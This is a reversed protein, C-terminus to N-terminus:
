IYNKILYKKIILVDNAFPHYVKKIKDFSKTQLHRKKKNIKEKENLHKEM